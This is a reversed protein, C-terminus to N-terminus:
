LELENLADKMAKQSTSVVGSSMSRGSKVSNGEQNVSNELEKIASSKMSNTFKSFDTLGKTLVHLAHLKMKYEQDNAYKDMLENVPEKSDSKIPTTMSEFIKDKTTSNVKIGPIVESTETVKTKLDALKQQTDAEKDKKTRNGADIVEQIKSNEFAVLAHKSDMADDLPNDGKMALQTYRNAKDAEFGKILFGRRIIEAQLEPRAQMQEETISEYQDASAKTHVFTDHPVGAELAELYERQHDNLKALENTKVQGDLAELLSDADTIDALEEDTLKDFTGAEKLASALSTFTNQSSSTAVSDDDAPVKKNDKDGQEKGDVDGTTDDDESGANAIDDIDIADPDDSIDEDKDQTSTTDLGDNSDNPKSTTGTTEMVASESNELDELEIGEFEGM